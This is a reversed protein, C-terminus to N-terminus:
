ESLFKASLSYWTQGGPINTHDLFTSSSDPWVAISKFGIAQIADLAQPLFPNTGSGGQGEILGISVASAPSVDCMANLLSGFQDACSQQSPAPNPCSALPTGYTGSYDELIALDVAAGIQTLDVLGDGGSSPCQRIYWDGLDITLIMNAAHLAAKFASLFQVYKKGYQSYGTTQVEFDLNWGDYHRAVAESVMSTIFSAQAGAPDDNLVNQIGQDTGDNGAGAYVLPILTMSAAHVQAAVEEVSLGDFSEGSIKAAGSAYAYNLQYFDPSVQTFAKPSSSTVATLNAKFGSIYTPIWILAQNGTLLAPASADVSAEVSAADKQGSEADVRAYEADVSADWGGEASPVASEWPADYMGTAGLAAAENVAADAVETAAENARANTAAADNQPQGTSGGGGCAFCCSSGIALLVQFPAREMMPFSTAGARRFPERARSRPIRQKRVPVM